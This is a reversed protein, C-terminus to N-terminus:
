RLLWIFCFFWDVYEGFVFDWSFEFCIVLEIKSDILIILSSLFIYVFMFLFCDEKVDLGLEEDWVEMDVFRELVFGLM